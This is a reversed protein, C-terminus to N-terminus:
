RRGALAEKLRHLRTEYASYSIGLYDARQRQTRGVVAVPAVHEIYAVIAYRPGLDRLIREVAIYQHLGRLRVDRPLHSSPACRAGIDGATIRGLISRHDHGLGGNVKLKIDAWCDLAHM